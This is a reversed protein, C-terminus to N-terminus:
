SDSRLQNLGFFRPGSWRTGTIERAVESLSAHERGDYRFGAETVTVTHERGRWTRVLTAGPALRTKRRRKRPRDQPERTASRKARTLLRRTEADMGGAERAQVRWAIERIAFSPRLYPTLRATIVCRGPSSSGVMRDCHEVTKAMRSDLEASWAIMREAIGSLAAPASSNM